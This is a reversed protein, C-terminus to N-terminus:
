GGRIAELFVEGIEDAKRVGVGKIELLGDISRPRRRAMERLTADHFIVYPPM